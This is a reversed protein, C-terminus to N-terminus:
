LSKKRKRKSYLERKRRDAEEKGYKQLWIDYPTKGYMPNKQGTRGQMPNNKKMRESQQKKWEESKPKGKSKLSQIESFKQKDKIKHHKKNNESIKQKQEETHKRGWWPSLEGKRGYMPNKQGKFAKSMRELHTDSFQCCRGGKMLNLCKEDKKYSDGILEEELKNLEELSNAYAIIEKKFESKDHSKLMNKLLIGSGFYGDDLNNTRHQGIYFKGSDIHTIKYIYFYM